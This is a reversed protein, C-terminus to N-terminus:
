REIVRAPVGVALHWLAALLVGLAAGGVVDLPLHAGVVVRSLAVVTALAFAVARWPRPVYPALVTACAFAVTAHGSVFGLGESPASGHVIDAGLEALPRGRDVLSKVGKALWWGGWGVVLSGVTPRWSRAAWWGVAAALVPAWASGLQMPLWLVVNVAAPLNHLATFISVEWRPVGRAAIAGSVLLTAISAGAIVAYRAPREYHTGRASFPASM